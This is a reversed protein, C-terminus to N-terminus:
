ARAPRGSGARALPGRVAKRLGRSGSDAATRLVDAAEPTGIRALADAAAARLEATRFPAWWEGRYLAEKLAPIADPDRLAGLSEIARLYIGRLPGRHDVHRLIYSFLPTAREDRVLGIAQMIAERSQATGSALAQQLVHYAADTGINLIARVAERQVQPEADDLLMTLDPLADSGGFERLLYIATRRVAANPSSKLREVTQRGVAGFAILLATLRERARAREETSLLEALPRVIVAGAALAITKVKEFQADDITALHSVIHRMMPGAVLQDIAHLAGPRRAADGEPGAERAIAAVLREASDFDAVLLLDEIEGVVPAMLDRWRAADQEIRLLDLLLAIDLMRVASTGVTGLWAALREPPDDSVQEVQIAMQRAGSLERGYADSVYKSDSYSTVMEVVNTWLSELDVTEALPSVAVEAHTLSLLREQRDSEPVLAHFARALRATAAGEAILSKALIRAATQEPMHRAIDGLLRPAETDSELARQSLLEFIVDPSVLAMATALNQLTTDVQDPANKSVAGVLTKLLRVLAAARARIGGHAAKEELKAILENIREPDGAAAVLADIAEDDLSVAGQLCDTVIRDWAAAQGGDRERLVEGYDIERLEIHRGGMTMWLRSIGGDARVGDPSRALLLLFSRWAEADGGAHVTMEGVLHAHLLAALEAVAEDVRAPERGDLRLAGPLVTLSLAPGTATAAAIRGLVATITPHAAPYLTVSRAAAKCARAFENLRATEEPSLPAPEDTM